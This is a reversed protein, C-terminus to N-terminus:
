RKAKAVKLAEFMVDWFRQPHGSLGETVHIIHHVMEHTVTETLNARNQYIQITATRPWYAGAKPGKTSLVQLEPQSVKYHAKHTQEWAKQQTALNM